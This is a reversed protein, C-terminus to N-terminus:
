NSSTPQSSLIYKIAAGVNAALNKETNIDLHPFPLSLQIPQQTLFEKWHALKWRDRKEGRSHLRSHLVRESCLCRIVIIKAKTRAALSRIFRRWHPNQMEKVHPVDLLVSNGLRLNGEVITYLAAYFHPRMKEYGRGTRTNPFFADAIHNNDLYVTCIRRVIERALTSKGSGAVGM